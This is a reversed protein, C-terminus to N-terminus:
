AHQNHRTDIAQSIDQPNALYITLLMKKSSSLFTSSTAGGVTFIARTLLAASNKSLPHGTDFQNSVCPRLLQASQLTQKIFISFTLLANADLTM